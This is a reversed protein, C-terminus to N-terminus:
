PYPWPNATCVKGDRPVDVQQPSAGTIDALDNNATSFTQQMMVPAPSGHADCPEHQRGLFHGVEHNVMYQRYGDLERYAAAGRTWRAASLYVHGGVRCSTDYPLDFGCLARATEQSALRIRLNPEGTDVRRLAVEGSGTWGRPDGLVREVTHGFAADGDPPQVGDEVEISFTHVLGTGVAGTSGPVVHWTGSGRVPVPPGDPLDASSPRRHQGGMAAQQGGSTSTASTSTAPASTHPSPTSSSPTGVTILENATFAPPAAAEAHQGALRMTTIVALSLACAGATYVVNRLHPTGLAM